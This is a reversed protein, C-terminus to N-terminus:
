QRVLKTMIVSVDDFSIKGSIKCIEESIESVDSKEKLERSIIGYAKEPVGDSIMAVMDGAKLSFTRKYIGARESVGVPFTPSSVSFINGGHSFITPAAGSKYVTVNGSDLDFAAIDLTTFYDDRSELCLISNITRISQEADLGGLIFKKFLSVARSSYFAAKEGTGMGDSIVVYFKGYSDKFCLCTDGNKESSESNKQSIDAEVRYVPRESILFRMEEGDFCKTCEFNKGFEDSLTRYISYGSVSSNKPCYIEAFLRRSSNYYAVLSTFGIDNEALVNKMRSSVRHDITYRSQVDASLCRIIESSASLQEALIRGSMNRYENETIDSINQDVEANVTKRHFYSETNEAAEGITDAALRMRFASIRMMDSKEDFMSSIRNKENHVKEVPVMIFLLLGAATNVYSMFPFMDLGSVATCMVSVLLYASAAAPRGYNIFAGAAMGSIGMFVVSRFDSAGNIMLAVAGLIGATAGGTFRYNRAYFLILFVAAIEGANIGFFSYSSLVSVAAFCMVAVAPRNVAAEAAFGRSSSVLTVTYGCVVGALVSATSFLIMSYVTFNETVCYVVFSLMYCLAAAMGRKVADNKKMFCTILLVSVTGFAYPITNTKGTSIYSLLSGTVAAASYLPSLAATFALPFPSMVSSFDSYSLFFFASICSILKVPLPTKINNDQM